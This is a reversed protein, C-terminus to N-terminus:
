SDMAANGQPINRYRTKRSNFITSKSIQILRLVPVALPTSLSTKAKTNKMRSDEKGNVFSSQAKCLCFEKNMGIM